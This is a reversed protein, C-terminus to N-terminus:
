LCILKKKLIPSVIVGNIALSRLESSLRIMALIEGDARALVHVARPAVGVAVQATFLIKM